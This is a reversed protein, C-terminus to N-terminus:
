INLGRVKCYYVDYTALAYANPLTFSIISDTEDYEAPYSFENIDSLNVILSTFSPNNSIQLHYKTSNYISTWNFIPTSTYIVTGNGDGNISVFQIEAETINRSTIFKFGTVGGDQITYAFSSIYYYNGRVASGDVQTNNMNCGQDGDTISDLLTLSAPNSLNYAYVTTPRLGSNQHVGVFVVTENPNLIVNACIQGYTNRWQYVFSDTSINWVSLGYDQSTICMVGTTATGAIDYSKALYSQSETDLLVMNSTNSIDFLQISTGLYGLTVARTDNVWLGHAANISINSIEVLNSFDSCDIAMLKGNIGGAFFATQSSAVYKLGGCASGSINFISYISPNNIDTVNIVYISSSENPTDWTGVFCFNENDTPVFGYRPYMDVHITSVYVPASEGDSINFFTINWTGESTHALYPRTPFSWLHMPKYLSPVGFTEGKYYFTNEAEPTPEDGFRFTTLGNGYQVASYIYNETAWTSTCAVEYYSDNTNTISTIETPNTIDDINYAHIKSYGGSMSTVYLVSSNSTDPVADIGYTASISETAELNINSPDTINIISFSHGVISTAYIIPNDTGCVQAPNAGISISDLFGMNTPDSVDFTCFTDGGYSVTCAVTENAWIDHVRDGAGYVTDIVTPNNKDSVNISHVCDNDYDACFVIDLSDVYWAGEIHTSSLPSVSGMQVPNAKDTCNVITVTGNGANGGDTSVYFYNGDNSVSGARPRQNLRAIGTLTPNSRTSIDFIALSGGIYGTPYPKHCSMYLYDGNIMTSLSYNFADGYDGDIWYLTNPAQTEYGMNTTSLSIISVVLLLIIAYVISQKSEKNDLINKM